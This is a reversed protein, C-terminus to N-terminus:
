LSSRPVSSTENKVLGRDIRRSSGLRVTLLEIHSVNKVCGDSEVALFRRTEITDATLLIKYTHLTKEFNSVVHRFEGQLLYITGHKDPHLYIDIGVRWELAKPEFGSSTELTIYLEDDRDELERFGLIMMIFAEAVQYVTALRNTTSM